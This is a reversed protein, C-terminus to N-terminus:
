RPAADLGTESREVPIPELRLALDAVDRDILIERTRAGQLRYGRVSTSLIYPGELGLFRFTGDPSLVASRIGGTATALSVRMDSALTSGDNLLVRGSLSHGRRAKIDGANVIEGDSHTAIYKTDM